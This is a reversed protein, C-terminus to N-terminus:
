KGALEKAKAQSEQDLRKLPFTYSKGAANEVTLREEELSVFRAKVVKGDSSTWTEIKREVTAPKEPKEESGALQKAYAQSGPSLEDLLLSGKGFKESEVHLRGAKVEVFRGRYHRGDTRVWILEAAPRGGAKWKELKARVSKKLAKYTDRAPDGVLKESGVTELTEVLDASLLVIRPDFTGMTPGRLGTVVPPPMDVEKIKKSELFVVVAYSRLEKIALTTAQQTNRYKSEPDSVLFALAKGRELAEARAKDLEGIAHIGAPVKAALSSSIALMGLIVLFHVPNM